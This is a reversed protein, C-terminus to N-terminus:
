WYQPSHRSHNCSNLDLGIELLVCCCSRALLPTVTHSL